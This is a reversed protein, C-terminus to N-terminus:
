PWHIALSQAPFVIRVFALACEPCVIPPEPRDGYHAHVRLGCLGDPWGAPVLHARGPHFDSIGWAFDSTATTM